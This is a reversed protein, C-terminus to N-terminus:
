DSKKGDSKMLKSESRNLSIKASKQRKEFKERRRNFMSQCKPRQSWVRRGSKFNVKSLLSVLGVSFFFSTIWLNGTQMRASRKKEELHGEWWFCGFLRRVTLTRSTRREKPYMKRASCVQCESSREAPCLKFGIKAGCVVFVPSLMMQERSTVQSRAIQL